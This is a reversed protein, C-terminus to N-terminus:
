RSAGGRGGPPAFSQTRKTEVQRKPHVPSCGRTYAPADTPTYPPAGGSDRSPTATAERETRDMRAHPPEMPLQYLSALGKRRTTIVADVEELRRLAKPVASESVAARLAISARSPWVTRNEDGIWSALATYIVKQTATLERHGTVWLPVASWRPKGNKTFFNIGQGDEGPSEPRSVSRVAM